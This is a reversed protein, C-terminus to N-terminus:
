AECGMSFISEARSFGLFGLNLVSENSAWKLALGRGASSMWLASQEVSPAAAFIEARLGQLGNFLFSRRRKAASFPPFRRFVAAEFRRILRRRAGSVGPRGV